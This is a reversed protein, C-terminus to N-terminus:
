TGTIDREYFDMFRAVTPRDLVYRGDSALERLKSRDYDRVGFGLSMVMVNAGLGARRLDKECFQFDSMILVVKLADKRSGSGRLAKTVERVGQDVRTIERGRLRNAARTIKTASNVLSQKATPRDNFGVFGMRLSDSEMDNVIEEQRLLDGVFKKIERIQDDPGSPEHDEINDTPIPAPTPTRWGPWRPTATPTAFEPPGSNCFPPEGEGPLGGGGPTPTANPDRTSVPTPSQMVGGGGRSMSNSDDALIVLDVLVPAAPCTGSVVLTVESTDGLLIVSPDVWKDTETLCNSLEPAVQAATRASPEASTLTLFATVALVIPISGIWMLRMRGTM